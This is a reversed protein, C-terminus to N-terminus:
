YNHVSTGNQWGHFLIMTKNSDSYYNSPVTNVSGDHEVAKVSSNDGEFWYLGYDLYDAAMASVSSLGACIAVASAAVSQKLTTKM